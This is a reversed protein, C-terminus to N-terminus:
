LKNETYLDWVHDLSHFDEDNSYSETLDNITEIWKVFAFGISTLATKPAEGMITMSESARYETMSVRLDSLNTHRDVGFLGRQISELDLLNIFSKSKTSAPKSKYPHLLESFKEWTKQDLSEKRTIERNVIPVIMSNFHDKESKTLEGISYYVQDPVYPLFPYGNVLIHSNGIKYMSQGVRIPIVDGVKFADIGKKIKLLAVVHDNRCELMDFNGIKGAPIVKNIKMGTIFDYQDYRIVTAEVVIYVRIKADLDRKILNPLSRKLLRGINKVYQGDRCKGEYLIKAHDLLMQEYETSYIANIDKVTINLELQTTFLMTASIAKTRIQKPKTPYIFM